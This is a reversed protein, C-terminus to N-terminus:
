NQPAFKLRRRDELWVRAKAYKRGFRDVLNTMSDAIGSPRVAPRKQADPSIVLSKLRSPDASCGAEDFMRRCTVEFDRCLTRYEVSFNSEALHAALSRDYLRSFREFGTRSQEIALEPFVGKLDECWSGINFGEFQPSGQGIDDRGSAQQGRSVISKWQSERDRYVHVIKATPFRAKLWPLRFTARNFKLLVKSRRQFGTEILYNLYRYLDDARDEGTLYLNHVAWDPNFLEGIRSFGKFEDFYDNVFFHHEYVRLPWVLYERLRPHLPEYLCHYEGTERFLTFLLTSGSCFDGSLFVLDGM